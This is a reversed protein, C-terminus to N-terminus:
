VLHGRCRGLDHHIDAIRLKREFKLTQGVFAHTERAEFEDDRAVDADVGLRQQLEIAMGLGAFGTGIVLARTHVPAATTGADATPEVITM